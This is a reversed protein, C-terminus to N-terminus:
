NRSVTSVIRHNEESFSEANIKANKAGKRNLQMKRPKKTGKIKNSSAIESHGEGAQGIFL